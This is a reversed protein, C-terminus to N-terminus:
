FTSFYYYICVCPLTNVISLYFSTYQEEYIALSLFYLGIGNRQEELFFHSILFSIVRHVISFFIILHYNMCFNIFINVTSGSAPLHCHFSDLFSFKLAFELTEVRQHFLLLFNEVNRFYKKRFNREQLSEKRRRKKRERERFTEHVFSFLFFFIFSIFSNQFYLQYLFITIIPIM